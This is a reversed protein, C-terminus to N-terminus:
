PENGSRAHFFYEKNTENIKKSQKARLRLFFYFFNIFCLISRKHEYHFRTNITVKKQEYKTITISHRFLRFAKNYLKQLFENSQFLSNM